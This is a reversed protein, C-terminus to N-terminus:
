WAHLGGAGLLPEPAALLGARSCPALLHSWLTLLDTVCELEKREQLDRGRGKSGAAAPDGRSSTLITCSALTCMSPFLWEPLLRPPHLWPRDCSNHHAPTAQSIDLPMCFGHSIVRLCLAAHQM